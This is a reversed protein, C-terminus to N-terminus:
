DGFYLNTHLLKYLANYHVNEFENVYRKLSFKVIYFGIESLPEWIFTQYNQRFNDKQNFRDIGM